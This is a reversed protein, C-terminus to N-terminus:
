NTKVFLTLVGGCLIITAAMLVIFTPLATGSTPVPEGSLTAEPTVEETPTPALTGSPTADGLVHTGSKLIEFMHTIAVPRNQGDVTTATISQKGSGLATPPTFRWIGDAGVLTSGNLPHTIGIVLSVTKGPFGTGQVHPRNSPIAAGDAPNILSVTFSQNTTGLVQPDSSSVPRIAVDAGIVKAQQKRFDYTKGMIMEPVPNDNLTDTIASLEENNYRVIITETMRDTVPLYDSLDEARLMSLPVIWNGSTNSLASLTQGGEVTLYVLAGNASTEDSGKVTGYAPPLNTSSGALVPATTIKYPRGRDRVTKGNSTLTIEVPTNPAVGTIDISHTTYKGLKGTSDRDDYGTITKGSAHAIVVGTAPGRTTWTTTFGRDTINTITVNEPQEEPAAQAYLRTVTETIAVVSGISIILLLIGVIAPIRTPIKINNM